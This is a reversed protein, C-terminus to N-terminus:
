RGTSPRLKVNCYQYMIHEIQQEADRFSERPDWNWDEILDELKDFDSLLRYNSNKLWEFRWNERIAKLQKEIPQDTSTDGYLKDELLPILAKFSKALEAKEFRSLSLPM